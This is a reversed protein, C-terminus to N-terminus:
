FKKRFKYLEKVEKNVQKLESKTYFEDIQVLELNDKKLINIIM